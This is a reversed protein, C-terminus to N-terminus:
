KELQDLAARAQVAEPSTPDITIVDKMAKVAAAKDGKNMAMTGLKLVPKGWSADAEAAKKYLQAAMESDNRTIKMEALNYFVERSALPREAARTLVQEAATTDGKELNAQALGVHARDNDPEVKLLDNYAEIAKDYNKLNRYAAGIQLQVVGFSPA